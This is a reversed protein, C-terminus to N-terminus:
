FPIEDSIDEEVPNGDAGKSVQLVKLEADDLQKTCKEALKTGEEFLKLAEELAVDGREMKRVIEDLRDMSQEFTLKEENM